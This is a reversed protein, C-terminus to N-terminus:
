LLLRSRWLGAQQLFMQVIWLPLAIEQFCFSRGADKVVWAIKPVSFNWGANPNCKWFHKRQTEWTAEVGGMFSPSSNKQNVPMITETSREGRRLVEREWGRMNITPGSGRTLHMSAPSVKYWDGYLHHASPVGTWMLSCSWLWCEHGQTM